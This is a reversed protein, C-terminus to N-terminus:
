RPAELVKKMSELTTRMGEQLVAGRAAIYDAAREPHRDAALRVGTLGAPLHHFRQTLATGEDSDSMEFVWGSAPTGDFRDGVVYGFRAGPECETVTCTRTWEEDGLRNTGAFRAGVAAETAGDLWESHVCEPSFEGIRTPDAVLAWVEARPAHVVVHHELTWAGFAEDLSVGM